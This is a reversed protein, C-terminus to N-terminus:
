VCPITELDNATATHRWAERAVSVVVSPTGVRPTPGNLDVPTGASGDISVVFATLPMGRYDLQFRGDDSSWSNPISAKRRVLGNFYVSYGGFDCAIARTRGTLPETFLIVYLSHSTAVLVTLEALKQLDAM